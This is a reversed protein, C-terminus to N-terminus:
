ASLSYKYSQRILKARRRAVEVELGNKMVISRNRNNYNCLYEPNILYARHVRIFGEPLLKGEFHKLTRAIMIKSGDTLYVLSYNVFGQLMVIENPLIEQCYKRDIIVANESFFYPTQM